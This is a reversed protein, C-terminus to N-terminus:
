APEPDTGEPSQATQSGAQVPWRLGPPEEEHGLGSVPRDGGARDQPHPLRVEEVSVQHVDSSGATFMLPTLTNRNSRSLDGAQLQAPLDKGGPRHLAPRAGPRGSAGCVGHSRQVCRLFLSFIWSDRSAQRWTLVQVWHAERAPVSWCARWVSTSTTQM